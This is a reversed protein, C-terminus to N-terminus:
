FIFENKRRKPKLNCQFDYDKSLEESLKIITKNQKAAEIKLLNIFDPSLWVRKIKM